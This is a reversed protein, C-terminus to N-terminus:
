RRVSPNVAVALNNRWCNCTDFGCIRANLTSRRGLTRSAVAALLDPTTGVTTRCVWEVECFNSLSRLRYKHIRISPQRRKCQQFYLHNQLFSRSSQWDFFRACSFDDFKCECVPEFGFGGIGSRPSHCNEFIATRQTLNLVLRQGSSDPNDCIILADNFQNKM